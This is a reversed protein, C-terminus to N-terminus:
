IGIRGGIGDAIVGGAQALLLAAILLQEFDDAVMPGGDFVTRMIPAVVGEVLITALDGLAAGNLDQAGQAVQGQTEVFQLALLSAGLRGFEFGPAALHCARGGELQHPPALGIFGFQIVRVGTTRNLRHFWAVPGGDAGRQRGCCGILSRRRLWLWVVVPAGCSM